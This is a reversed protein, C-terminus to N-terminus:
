LGDIFKDIDKGTKLTAVIDKDDIQKLLQAEAEPTFGNVTLWPLPVTGRVAVHTFFLRTASALDMGNREVIAQVAKKLAVPIRVHFTTTKRM